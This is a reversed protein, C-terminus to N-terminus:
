GKCAFSFPTETNKTPNTRPYTGRTFLRTISLDFATAYITPLTKALLKKCKSHYPLSLAITTPMNSIM